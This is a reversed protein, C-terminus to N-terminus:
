RSRGFGEPNGVPPFDTLHATDRYQRLAWDVTPYALDAWPIGEWPVLLTDQSEIGPAHDPSLMEARYIMHVQSIHPLNYIALLAGVRVRASAEEWVERAAGDQTTEGLEMFGAPMSWFGVRPEIARRVLLFRDKWTCIAGVIIKPNDYRVYGCTDCVLRERDDGEPVRATFAPDTPASTPRTVAGGESWSM